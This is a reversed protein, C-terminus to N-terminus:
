MAAHLFKLHSRLPQPPRVDTVVSLDAGRAVLGDILAEDNRLAAFHLPRTGAQAVVRRAPDRWAPRM